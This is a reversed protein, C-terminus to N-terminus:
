EVFRSFVDFKAAPWVQTLAEKLPLKQMHDAVMTLEASDLM